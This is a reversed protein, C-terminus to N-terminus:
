KSYPVIISININIAVYFAFNGAESLPCLERSDPFCTILLIMDGNKCSHWLYKEFKELINISFKSWNNYHVTM